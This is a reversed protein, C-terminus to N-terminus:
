HGFSHLLASLDVSFLSIEKLAKRGVWLKAMGKQLSLLPFSPTAPQQNKPRREMCPSPSLLLSSCNKVGMMMIMGMRM